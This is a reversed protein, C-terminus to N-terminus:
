AKGCLKPFAKKMDEPFDSDFGATFGTLESSVSLKGCHLAQRPIIDMSGGYLDDGCLPYGIHSMHVRIQHTRGTELKLKVLSNVGDFAAREFNTLAYEGDGDARRRIRSGPSLSIPACVFGKEPVKGECVAFYEKVIVTSNMILANKALLVLGSTDKDLRYFPRFKLSIGKAAYYGCVSSLLNERVNGCLYVTMNSPKNVVIYNENEYVIDPETPSFDYSVAEEPSNIALEDGSSLRDTVIAHLGNVLIGGPACKLKKLQRSSIGAAKRLYDKITFGEHETEIRFTYSAM